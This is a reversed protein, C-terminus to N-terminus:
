SQYVYDLIFDKIQGNPAAMGVFNIPIGCNIELVGSKGVRMPEKNIIVLSGPDMQIGIKNAVIGNPLINNIKCVDYDAEEINVIRADTRFNYDYSLRKLSLLIQKASTYPTFVFEFVQYRNNRTNETDLNSNKRAEYETNLITFYQKARDWEDNDILGNNDNIINTPTGTCWKIFAEQRQLEATTDEVSSSYPSVILKKIINQTIQNNENLLDIAIVQYHPDTDPGGGSSGLSRNVNIREINLRVYYVVDTSFVSNIKVVRDYFTNVENTSSITISKNTLYESSNDKRIQRVQTSM